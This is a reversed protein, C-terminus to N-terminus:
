VGKEKTILTDLKILDSMGVIQKSYKPIKRKAIELQRNSLSGTKNLQRAFSSLIESDVGNFGVGNLATAIGMAQEESTQHNYLVSIARKIWAENTELKAKVWAVREKKTIM